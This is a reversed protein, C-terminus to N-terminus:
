LVPAGKNYSLSPDSINSPLSIIINPVIIGIAALAYQISPLTGLGKLCRGM